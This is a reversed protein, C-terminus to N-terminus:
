RTSGLTRHAEVVLRLALTARPGSVLQKDPHLIRVLRRFEGKQQVLTGGGFIEKAGRVSIIREVEREAEARLVPDPTAEGQALGPEMREVDELLMLLEGEENGARCAQKPDPGEEESSRKSDAGKFVARSGKGGKATASGKGGRCRRCCCVLLCCSVFVASLLGGVAIALDIDDLDDVDMTASSNSSPRPTWSNHHKPKIHHRIHGLWDACRLDFTVCCVENESSTLGPMLCDSRAIGAHNATTTSTTTTASPTMTITTITTDTVTKTTAKTSTTTPAPTTTTPVPRQVQTTTPCQMNFHMCCEVRMTESKPLLCTYENAVHDAAPHVPRPPAAPQVPPSLPPSHDWPRPKELGVGGGFIGGVISGLEHEINSHLEQEAEQRELAAKRRQFPTRATSSDAEAELADAIAENATAATHGFLVTIGDKISGHARPGQSAAGLLYAAPALAAVIALAFWIRLRGGSFQRIPPVDEDSFSGGDSGDLFGQEVVEGSM